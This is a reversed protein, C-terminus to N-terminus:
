RKLIPDGEDLDLHRFIVLTIRLATNVSFNCCTWTLRSPSHLILMGRGWRQVNVPLTTSSIAQRPLRRQKRFNGNLYENGSMLITKRCEGLVLPTASRPDLIDRPPPSVDKFLTQCQVELTHSSALFTASSRVVHNGATLFSNSLAYYYYVTFFEICHSLVIALFLATSPGAQPPGFYAMSPWAM